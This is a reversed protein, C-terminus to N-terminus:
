AGEQGQPNNVIVLGAAAHATDDSLPIVVRTYRTETSIWKVWAVGRGILGGLELSDRAIAM